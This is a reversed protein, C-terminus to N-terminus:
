GRHRTFAPVTTPGSEENNNPARVQVARWGFNNRHSVMDHLSQWDIDASPLAAPDWRSSVVAVLLHRGEEPVHPELWRLTAIREGGPPIPAVDQTGLRVFRGNGPFPRHYVQVIVSESPSTGANRVAVYVFHEEGGRVGLPGASKTAGMKEAVAALERPRASVLIDPSGGSSGRGPAGADDADRRLYVDDLCTAVFRALNPMRGIRDIAPERSETGHAAIAERVLLPSLPAGRRARCLGQMCAVAGAVIASAGSTLGFTTTADDAAGGPFYATTTISTGWAHADIRSGYNSLLHRSGAASGPPRPAAPDDLRPYAAGVLLAGSDPGQRSFTRPPEGKGSPLSVRDLEVAGTGDGYGNGAPEVVVIGRASLAAIVEFLYPDTELPLWVDRAGPSDAPVLEGAGDLAYGLEVELLLVDGPELKEAARSMATALRELVSTHEGAAAYSAVGAYRLAPAIGAGGVRDHPTLLIGLVATGHHRATPEDLNAGHILEVRPRRPGDTPAVCLERHLLDWGLEVDVFGVGEGRGGPLAWAAEAAIGVAAEDLYGQLSRLPDAGGAPSSLRVKPEVYALEVGEHQALRALLSAVDVDPGCELVHYTTALAPLTPLARTSREEDRPSPAPLPLVRRTVQAPLVDQWPAAGGRTRVTSNEVDGPEGAAARVIVHARGAPGKSPGPATIPPTALAARNM